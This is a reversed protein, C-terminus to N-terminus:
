PVMLKQNEKALFHGEYFHVQIQIGYPFIPFFIDANNWVRNVFIMMMMMMVMMM